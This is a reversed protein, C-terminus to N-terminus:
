HFMMQYIQHFPFEHDIPLKKLLTLCAPNLTCVERVMRSPMQANAHIGELTKFREAQIEKAKGVRAAIDASSEKPKEYNSIEEISVPTVEVHLDIRDM